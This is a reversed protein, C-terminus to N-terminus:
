KRADSRENVMVFFTLARATQRLRDFRGAAGGHGATMDTEFLLPNADTKTARLRAVWKAPEYYQVQSDHLGTRVYMAPYPARKVNDYPSYALITDYAAKEKPNGWEDFENTTLPITEDLMTTVADVFPVFAVIGRYLDPRLNAIAGMLLGGASGGMAYVRDRAALKEAVLYESAAIFDTFTNMKKLLKGDEYWARGMEQGGRVHAIAYVWGRDLLSVSTQNFYPEMSIGYSGYGYILIPAKGDRATTKKYVVSIPIRTGDKATAHLYESTYQSPDYTPVPNQKLLVAASTAHAAVNAEYISRPVTMADYSYRVVKSAPDPTDIVTMAYTPDPADLLFSKKGARAGRPLVEVKRLGDTRVSVAIFDRYLAFSEILKEASHPILEKWAKRDNEKGPAIEVLRFNKAGANSSVVFRGDLHDVSYLHDASRALFVRPASQPRAADILRVESNTTAELVIEIYKHSKTTTLDVYYQGDDEKFIQTTAGGLEHRFIRDTRLTTPDKGVYFLTKGDASWGFSPQINEATDPLVAGTRLDKIRLAFQNRGVTDEGWAILNGDPSIEYNGVAYFAHGEALANGDLMVQETATMTGDRKAKKRAYVPYQKGTEYRVYYWYGRDFVPVTSDDEKIRARMESFLQEELTKGGAFWAEAYGNEAKLYTLVDPSERKDDRLWYYPDSRDGNPSKVQYPRQPAIPATPGPQGPPGLPTVPPAGAGGSGDAAPPTVPDGAPGQPATSSGGCASALTALVLAGAAVLARSSSRPSFIM